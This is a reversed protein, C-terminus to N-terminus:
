YDIIEGSIETLLLTGEIIKFTNEEDFHRKKKKMFADKTLWHNTGDEFDEKLEGSIKTALFVLYYKDDFLNGEHTEIKHNMGAFKLNASLGIGNTLLAYAVETPNEGFNVRRTPFEWYDFFPQIRRQQFLFQDNQSLVLLVSIRQSNSLSLQDPNIRLALKKGTESLHYQQDDKIIWENKVLQRLHYSFWDNSLRGNNLESFRAQKKQSLELIIQAQITHIDNM